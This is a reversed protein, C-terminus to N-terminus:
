AYIVMKNDHTAVMAVNKHLFIGSKTGHVWIEQQLFWSDWPSSHVQILHILVSWPRHIKLLEIRHNLFRHRIVAAPSLWRQYSLSMRHDFHEIQYQFHQIKYQFHQIKYQFHQQRKLVPPDRCHNLVAKRRHVALDLPFPCTSQHYPHRIPQVRRYFIMVIHNQVFTRRNEISFATNKMSFPKHNADGVTIYSWTNCVPTRLPPALSPLWAPPRGAPICGPTLTAATALWGKYIHTTRGWRANFPHGALWPVQWSVYLWNLWNLWHQALRYSVIM